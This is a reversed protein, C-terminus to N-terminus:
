CAAAVADATGRDCPRRHQQRERCSRSRRLHGASRIQLGARMRAHKAVPEDGLAPPHIATPVPTTKLQDADAAGLHGDAVMSDLVENRREIAAARNRFPNYESPAQTLGALLASEQLNLNNAHKDFFTM